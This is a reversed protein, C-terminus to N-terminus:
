PLMWDGCKGGCGWVMLKSAVLERFDEMGWKVMKLRSADGLMRDEYTAGLTSSMWSLTDGRSHVPLPYPHPNCQQPTCRLNCEGEYVVGEKYEDM